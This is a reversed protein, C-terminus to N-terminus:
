RGEQFTKENFEPHEANIVGKGHHVKNWESMIEVEAKKKEYSCSINDADIYAGMLDKQRRISRPDTKRKM